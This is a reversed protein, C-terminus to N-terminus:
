TLFPRSTNEVERIMVIRMETPSTMSEAMGCSTAWPQIALLSPSGVAFRAPRRVSLGAACMSGKPDMIRGSMMPANPPGM